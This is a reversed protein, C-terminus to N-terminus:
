TRLGATIYGALALFLLHPAWAAMIPPLIEASGVSRFFVFTLWFIVTLALAVAVGSLTGQRGMRFGFPIAVLALVFVIAPFAFKQQLDIKYKSADFGSSELKDIHARLESASMQEPLRQETDFYDPGESIPLTAARMRDIPPSIIRGGDEDQYTYYRRWADTALWRGDLWHARTAYDIRSLRWAEGDLYYIRLGQFAQLEPDYDAYHFIHNGEGRMWNGQAPRMSFTNTNRV